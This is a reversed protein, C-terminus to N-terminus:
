QPTRPRPPTEVANPGRRYPHSRRNWAAHEMRSQYQDNAIQQIAQGLGKYHSSNMTNQFQRRQFNHRKQAEVGRQGRPRKFGETRPPAPPPIVVKPVSETKEVIPTVIPTVSGSMETLIEEVSKDKPLPALFEFKESNMPALTENTEKIFVDADKEVIKLKNLQDDLPTAEQGEAM